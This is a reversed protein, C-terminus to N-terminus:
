KGHPKDMSKYKMRPPFTETTFSTRIDLSDCSSIDWRACKTPTMYVVNYGM